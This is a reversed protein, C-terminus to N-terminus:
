SGVRSRVGILRSPRVGFMRTMAGLTRAVESASSIARARALGPVRDKPWAPGPVDWCMPPSISFIIAPMSMVAM